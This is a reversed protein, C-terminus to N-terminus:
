FGDRDSELFWAKKEGGAPMKIFLWAFTWYPLSQSNGPHLCHSELSPTSSEMPPASTWSPSNEELPHPHCMTHLPLPLPRPQLQESLQRRAEAALDLFYPNRGQAWRQVRVSPVSQSSCRSLVSLYTCLPFHIGVQTLSRARSDGQLFTISM